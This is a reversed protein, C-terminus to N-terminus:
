GQRRSNQYLKVSTEFFGAAEMWLTSSYLYVSVCCTRSLFQCIEILCCPAVDLCVTLLDEIKNVITQGYITVSEKRTFGVSASFEM